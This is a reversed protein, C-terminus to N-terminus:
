ELSPAFFLEVRDSGLVREKETTGAGLVLDADVCDFRFHLREDDWLARFETSPAPTPEWPFGFDKLLAAQSWALEGRKKRVSYRKVTALGRDQARSRHAHQPRAARRRTQPRSRRN